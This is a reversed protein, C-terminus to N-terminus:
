RHRKVNLYEEFNYQLWSLLLTLAVIALNLYLSLDFIQSVAAIIIFHFVYIQYSIRGFFDLISLMCHRGVNGHHVSSIILGGAIFSVIINHVGIPNTASSVAAWGLFMLLLLTPFGWKEYCATLRKLYLCVFVGIFFQYARAEFHFHARETLDANVYFMALCASLFALTAFLANVAGVHRRKQVVVGLIGIMIYFQLELSLSWFHLLPQDYPAVDFYGSTASYFYNAFMGISSLVAKSLKVYEIPLLLFYGLALSFLLGSIITPFLRKIRRYAYKKLEFEASYISTIAPGGVLFGSLVLFIDVGLYGYKFVDINLHYGLVLLACIGRLCSILINYQM